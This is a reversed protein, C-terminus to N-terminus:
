SERLSDGTFKLLIQSVDVMTSSPEKKVDPMISEGRAEVVGEAVTEESDATVVPTLHVGILKNMEFMSMRDKKFVGRMLEDNIINQRNEPDQLEKEKIYDWLKKVVQPRSEQDVSIIQKLEASINHKKNFGGSGVARKKRATIMENGDEDKIKEVPASAISTVHKAMHKALHFMWLRKVGSFLALKDDCLIFKKDKPDLM